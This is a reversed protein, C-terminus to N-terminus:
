IFVARGGHQQVQNSGCAATTGQDPAMALLPYSVTGEKQSYTALTPSLTPSAMWRPISIWTRWACGPLLSASLQRHTLSSRLRLRRRRQRFCLLQSCFFFCISLLRPLRTGAQGHQDPTQVLLQPPLSTSLLASPPLAAFKAVLAVARPRSPIRLHLATLVSNCPQPYGQFTYM